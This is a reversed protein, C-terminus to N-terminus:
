RHGVLAEHRDPTTVTRAVGVADEGLAEGGGGEDGEGSDKGDAAGLLDSVSVLKCNGPLGPTIKESIAWAVREATTNIALGGHGDAFPECRNLDNNQWPALADTLLGQLLHFDCVTEINDLQNASVTVKVPGEPKDKLYYNIFAGDPPNPAAFTRQGLSANSRWAQWRTADRSDFLYSDAEM